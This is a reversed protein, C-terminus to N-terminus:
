NAKIREDIRNWDIRKLTKSKPEVVSVVDSIPTKLPESTNEYTPIPIQDDSPTEHTEPAVKPIRPYSEIYQYVKRLDAPAFDLRAVRNYFTGRAIGVSACLQKVQIGYLSLLNPLAAILKEYEDIKQSVQKARGQQEEQIARELPTQEIKQVPKKIKM